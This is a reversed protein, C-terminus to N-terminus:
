SLSDRSPHGFLLRLVGTFKIFFINLMMFIFSLGMIDANINDDSYLTHIIHVKWEILTAGKQRTDRFLYRGKLHILNHVINEPRM